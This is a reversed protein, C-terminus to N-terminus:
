PLRLVQDAARRGSRLAGEMLAAFGTLDTHEGCFVLPGVPRTLADPRSGEPPEVSYAAGTWPDDDWTSLVAGAPDLKLDPRLRELSGLWVETGRRVRLRELAAASGAFCSVVPQVAGDAGTATWTWYREPVSLVASPAAAARLPVFLKAAHGYAMGTFAATVEDPLRPEFAIAGLVTAPVSIVCADGTVETGEAHVRVGSADWSIREVPSRLHVASGLERALAAAVRQNGGAISPCPDSSHRAISELDTVSVLDASTAASVEVRALIAERAGPDIALGQLFDAASVAAAPEGRARLAAVVVSAAEAVTGGDVGDVGRPEREGYRMGKDWLELGLRAALERMVSYGPLIYEAGMEVVAGNPLERSWVRGGVRDRAELVLVEAGGQQLADAAALGAFGAGVVIVRMSREVGADSSGITTM